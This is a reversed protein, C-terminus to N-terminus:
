VLVMRVHDAPENFYRPILYGNFMADKWPGTWDAWGWHYGSKVNDAKIGNQRFVAMAANIKARENWYNVLEVSKMLREKRRKALADAAPWDSDPAYLCNLRLDCIEVGYVNDKYGLHLFPARYIRGDSFRYIVPLPCFVKLQENM